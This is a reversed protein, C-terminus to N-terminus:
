FSGLLGAGEEVWRHSSSRSTSVEYRRQSSGWQLACLAKFLGPLHLCCLSHSRSGDESGSGRGAPLHPTSRTVEKHQQAGPYQLFLRLFSITFVSFDHLFRQLTSLLVQCFVTLLHTWKVKDKGEDMSKYIVKKLRPPSTMTTTVIIIYHYLVQTHQWTIVVIFRSLIQWWVNNFDKIVLVTYLNINILKSKLKFACHQIAFM